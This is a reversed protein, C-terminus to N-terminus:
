KILDTDYITRKKTSSNFPACSFLKTPSKISTNEYLYHGPGM